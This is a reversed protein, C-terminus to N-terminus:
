QCQSDYLAAEKSLTQQHSNQTKEEDYEMDVIELKQDNKAEDSPQSNTNESNQNIHKVKQKSNKCKYCVVIIALLLVAAAGCLGYFIKNDM